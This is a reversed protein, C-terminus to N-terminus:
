SYTEQDTELTSNQSNLLENIKPIDKAFVNLKMGNVNSSYIPNRSAFIENSLFCEMGNADLLGKVISAEFPRMFTKYAVVKDDEM